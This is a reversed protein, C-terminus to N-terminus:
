RSAVCFSLLVWLARAFLRPDQHCLPLPGLDVSEIPAWGSSLEPRDPFGQDGADAWAEGGDTIAMYLTRRNLETDFDKHHFNAEMWASQDGSMLVTGLSLVAVVRDRLGDAAHLVALVDYLLVGKAIIVLRQHSHTLLGSVSAEDVESLAVVTAHPVAEQLDSIEGGVVVVVVDSLRRAIAAQVDAEWAAIHAWRVSPGLSVAPDYAVGLEEPDGMLAAQAPEAERFMWRARAASTELAVLAEVLAREGEIAPVAIETLRPRHLKDYVQRGAPHYPVGVLAAWWADQGGGRREVDGRIVTALITKWLREWDASLPPQLTLWAALLLAICVSLEVWAEISM